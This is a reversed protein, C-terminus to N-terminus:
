LMGGVRPRSRNPDHYPFLRHIPRERMADSGCRARKRDTCSQQDREPGATRATGVRIPRHRRVLTSRGIEEVVRDLGSRDAEVEIFAVRGLEVLGEALARLDAVGHEADAHRGHGCLGVARVGDVLETEM